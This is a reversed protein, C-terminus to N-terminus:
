MKGNMHTHSITNLRKSVKFLVAELCDILEMKSYSFFSEMNCSCCQSFNM